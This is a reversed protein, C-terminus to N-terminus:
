FSWGEVAHKVVRTLVQACHSVAPFPDGSLVRSLDLWISLYKYGRPGVIRLLTEKLATQGDEKRQRFESLAQVTLLMPGYHASTDAVFRNNKNTTTTNADDPYVHGM